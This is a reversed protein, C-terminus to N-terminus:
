DKQANFGSSFVTHLYFKLLIIIIVERACLCGKQKSANVGKVINPAVSNRLKHITRTIKPFCLDKDPAVEAEWCFRDITVNRANMAEGYLYQVAPACYRMFGTCYKWSLCPLAAKADYYPNAEADFIHASWAHCSLCVVKSLYRGCRRRSQAAVTELAKEYLSKIRQDDQETCCGVGSYEKCWLSKANPKFPPQFDLCQPHSDVLSLSLCFVVVSLFTAM